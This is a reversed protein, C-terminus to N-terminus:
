ESASQEAITKRQTRRKKRKKKERNELDMEPTTPVDPTSDKANSKGDRSGKSLRSEDKGTILQKLSKKKMATSKKRRVLVELKPKHTEESISNLSNSSFM